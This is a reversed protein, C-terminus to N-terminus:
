RDNIIRRSMAIFHLEKRLREDSLNNIPQGTIRFCTACYDGNLGRTRWGEPLHRSNAEKGCNDCRYLSSIIM